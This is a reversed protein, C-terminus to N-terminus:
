IMKVIGLILIAGGIIALVAGLMTARRDGSFYPSKKLPLGSTSRARDNWRAVAQRKSLALIGLALVVAGLILAAMM